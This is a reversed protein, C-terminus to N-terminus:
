PMASSRRPIYDAEDALIEGAEDLWERAEGVTTQVEEQSERVTGEAAEAAGQSAQQARVLANDVRTFMRRAVERKKPPARRPTTGAKITAKVTMITYVVLVIFALVAGFGVLTDWPVEGAGIYWLDWGDPELDMGSWMGIWLQGLAGGVTVATALLLGGVTFVRLPPERESQKTWSNLIIPGAGILILAIASGVTALAIVRNPDEGLFAKVVDASGFLATLFAGLFTINTVWGEKFNWSSELYELRTGLKGRGFILFLVLAAGPVTYFFISLQGWDPDEDGQRLEADVPIPQSSTNAATVTLAFNGQAPECASPVTLVADLSQAAGIAKRSLEPTCGPVGPVDPTVSLRLAADTVNTLAVKGTWRGDNEQALTPTRDDIVLLAQQASAQTAGLAVALLVLSCGLGRLAAARVESM